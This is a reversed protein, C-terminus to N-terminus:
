GLDADGVRVAVPAADRRASRARRMDLLARTVAPALSAPAKLLVQAPQDAQGGASPASGARSGGSGPPAGPPGTTVPLPGIRELEPPWELQRLVEDLAGHPGTLKATWAVPPLGLERREALERAAFWEPAWRVLAEVVPLTVHEPTGALVVMGGDTHSRTLAAATLWRRLAEEGADLRPRDLLAWADLLLAAAYGRETVPEAGPTAIVLAPTDPVRDLVEAGGSTRVVVEPFARGLEEATRRAGVVSSRLRFGGCEPCAFRPVVTACWRCTPPAGPGPLALPGQCAPCRAPERCTACSLSPLYGRRPVQVLVPGRTLAESAVRWATSPLHARAAAGDREVDSGEGAVRVRPAAARRTAPEPVIERLVGDEVWSQITVSRSHGGALLAAGELQARARLVSRVHPYPSRPEALLDDGDDWWALLGPDAVPAFAAARAGVVCRVHGRLLKLWATYRAQPGQDATLRVHRGSGLVQKLAADVRAVDRHDPVVLVVGRGASFTTAAAVALADAWDGGSQGLASWAAAPHEGAALRRLFSPGAPYAAWPGAEPVPVPELAPAERALAKEATAHRPPIALRLVEGLTGAHEAAVAQCLELLAPTLVPEDSVVRRVPTLRGTHETTDSRELVFGDVDQGAFRVKVRVGPRLLDELAAPVAYDFPRDLHPLPVDVAVRVVPDQTALQTASPLTRTAKRVPVGALLALQRAEGTGGDAQNM